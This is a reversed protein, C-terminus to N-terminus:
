TTCMKRDDVLSYLNKIRALKSAKAEILKGSSKDIAAIVSDRRPDKIDMSFSALFTAPLYHDLPMNIYRSGFCQSVNPM